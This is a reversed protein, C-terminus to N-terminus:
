VFSPADNAFLILDGATTHQLLAEQMQSKNSLKIMKEDKIHNQFIDVNLDGTVIILDFIEDAKKAIQTNLSTDAEVLGPTILVKRGQYTSVLEFSALMGDINGNFSDDLIIKGGADIRQLRHPTPKLTSLRKQITTEDIGITKALKIAAAINIANFAGLLPASYREGQIEFSVGDLTATIDKIDEGFIHLNQSPKAMTSEHLWGEKLRNSSLIELKTARIADITKFYEIHAPGIKGVIVYHPNVFTAIQAIDGKVRAGMEVIYIQTDDPLDDNIDKVIGGLTNVSRPTAYTRYEGQLIHALINKISTKGYSATVGVVILDEMKSIKEKAKTQYRLFLIKEIVWSLIFAFIFPAFLSKFGILLAPVLAFFLLLAFFRKVRPTWVLPKDLKKYWMYIAVIYVLSVVAGLNFLYHMLLYLGFPIAIYIVNWSPKTHHLFIRELKYNYWQLNTIIYYGSALIFILYGIFELMDLTAGQM